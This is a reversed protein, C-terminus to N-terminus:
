VDLRYASGDRRVRGATPAAFHTGIVLIPRDVVAELVRKRMATAAARDTDFPTSWDLRAMQAPHHMIDGTILAEEGRSRIRVSVHGPTHGPTPELTIASTLRHDSAVFDFLGADAIPRVSEQFIHDEQKGPHALAEDRWHAYESAAVLYRAKPFTPVWHGDVRMTNWGVHDVHLHTCLVTDISERAFGAAALDALFPGARNSWGPMAPLNKDNGICTDVLIRRGDSEVILAHVSSMLQGEATVFHPQLWPIAKVAEPHADALFFKHSTPGEVEVVRTITVDGVKWRLM